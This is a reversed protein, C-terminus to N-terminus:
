TSKRSLDFDIGEKFWRTLRELSWTNVVLDPDLAARRAMDVGHRVNEFEGLSHADTNISVLCGLGVALDLLEDSLDLRWPSANIEVAVKREACRRFVAEWDADYGERRTLLRGTPHALIRVAPHSVGRLMRETQADRDLQFYSHIAAVVFDLKDLIEDPYDLDGKELIDCESGHLLAIQSYRTRLERVEDAQQLLREVSLGNAVTVAPSHDTIGYYEHESEVARDIMERLTNRGDSWTSHTHLNGRMQEVELLTPTEGWADRRERLEPLIYSVGNAEFLAKENAAEKVEFREEAAKVFEAPGTHRLTMQGRDAASCFHIWIPCGSPHATVLSEAVQEADLTDFLDTRVSSPDLCTLLVEVRDTTATLRRVDGVVEAAEVEVLETLREVTREGWEELLDKHYTVVSGLLDEAGSLLKEQSRKSFGKLEAVRGDRCAAVLDELSAIQLEEFLLLTKKPGLGPVSSVALLGPPTKEKLAKLEPTVGHEILSEIQEAIGKGIGPISQLEGRERISEIPELLGAIATSAKTYARIKFHNEGNLKLYRATEDLAAIALENYSFLSTKSKGKTETPRRM